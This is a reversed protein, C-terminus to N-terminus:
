CATIRVTDSLRVSRADFAIEVEFFKGGGFKFRIAGNSGARIAKLVLPRDTLVRGGPLPRIRVPQEESLRVPEDLDHDNAHGWLSATAVVWAISHPEPSALTADMLTM